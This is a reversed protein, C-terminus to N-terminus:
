TALSEKKKQNFKSLKCLLSPRCYAGKETINRKVRKNSKGNNMGKKKKKVLTERTLPVLAWGQFRSWIEKKIVM